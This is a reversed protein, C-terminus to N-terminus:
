NDNKLFVGYFEPLESDIIMTNDKIKNFLEENYLGM